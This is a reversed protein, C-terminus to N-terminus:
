NDLWNKFANTNKSSVLILEKSTSTPQLEIKLRNQSYKFINKIASHKIIYKRNIKFFDKPSLKAELNSITDEYLYSEGKKTFLFLYKNQAMFYSIEKSSISILQEGRAVLFREQENKNEETSKLQLLLKEINSEENSVHANFNVYKGIASNLKDKDYPKLLYDIAFFQFTQIAYKDFATTFIIPTKIKLTEFIEFSEGDGLHIDSFILDCTHEKFWEISQAVSELRKKIHIAHESKLLLKELSEAALDEDEIIVIDM